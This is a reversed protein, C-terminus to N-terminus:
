ERKIKNVNVGSDLYCTVLDHPVDVETLKNGICSLTKITNPVSLEKIGNYNVSAIMLGEPLSLETFGNKSGYFCEVGEPIDVSVLDMESCFLTRGNNLLPLKVVEGKSNKGTTYM